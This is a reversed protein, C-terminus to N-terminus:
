NCQGMPPLNDFSQHNETDWLGSRSFARPCHFYCEEVLVKIALQPAKGSFDQKMARLSDEDDVIQAQGGIRLTWSEGPMMFLLGVHPNELINRIGYFLNNGKYDPILLTKPDVVTVMSRQGGKPSADCRGDKDATAIIVFPSRSIFDAAHETVEPRNKVTAVPHAPGFRQNLEESRVAHNLRSM